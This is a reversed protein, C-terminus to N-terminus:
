FKLHRECRTLLRSIDPAAAFIEKSQVNSKKMVRHQIRKWYRRAFLWSDQRVFAVSLAEV